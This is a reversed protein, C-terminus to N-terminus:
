ALPSRGAAPAKGQGGYPANVRPIAGAIFPAMRQCSVTTDALPRSMRNAPLLGSGPSIAAHALSALRSRGVALTITRLGSPVTTSHCAGDAYFGCPTADRFAVM